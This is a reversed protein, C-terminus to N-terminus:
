STVEDGVLKLEPLARSLADKLAPRQFAVRSLSALAARREPARISRLAFGLIPLLADVEEPKRIVREALQSTALRRARSGRHVALVATAWLHQLSQPAFSKEREPLTRLLTTRVDDYPSEAMAAWLLANDGFRADKSMLEMARARVDAHRADLLERVLEPRAPDALLLLQCVWDIADTRVSPAEARTLRLLFGLDDASAIRKAKAWRLGLEAVPAARACALEVCQVLTLREPAVTKEVLECLLPLAMPNDIDLLALWEKVPLLELGTASRLLEVAFTQVEQHPSDLLPKLLGVPLGRLAEAPERKLVDICFTRVTRCRATALLGLVADRCGRWAEPRYPAPQLQALTHGDAVTIGRPDRVLVPSGHYLAHMLGWASILHEPKGLHVDEYLALVPRIADGYRAANGGHAKKRFYRWARRQLYQRTVRSFRPMPKYVLSGEKGRKPGTRDGQLYARAPYARDWRLGWHENPKQAAWNWTTYKRLERRAFRDFAVLFHGMAEDDNRAEAHKFLVKVLARHGPRDCGDDIYGLLAERAFPRTDVSWREGLAKLKKESRSKFLEDLFRADGTDFYEELLLASATDSNM